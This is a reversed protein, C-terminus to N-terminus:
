MLLIHFVPFLQLLILPGTVLSYWTFFIIHCNQDKIGIQMYPKDGTVSASLQLYYSLFFPGKSFPLILLFLQRLLYIYSICTAKRM